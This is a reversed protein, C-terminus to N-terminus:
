LDLYVRIIFFPVGSVGLDHAKTAEALVDALAIDSRLQQKITERDLGVNAAIEVLTDLDGINQGDEFYATYIADIVADQMPRPTMAILRHSLLSNPAHQIKEFNFRLGVAAGAQRPGEFLQDLPVQGSVKAQMYENFLYGEPPINPNLFFSQYQMTVPEGNWLELALALHRKGIRCWPCVTDHYIHIHM